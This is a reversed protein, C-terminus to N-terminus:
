FSLGKTSFQSTTATTALRDPAHAPSAKAIFACYCGARAAILM